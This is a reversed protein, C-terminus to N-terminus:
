GGVRDSFNLVQQCLLQLARLADNKNADQIVELIGQALARVSEHPVEPDLFRDNLRDFFREP